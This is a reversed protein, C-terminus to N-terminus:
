GLITSGLFLLLISWVGFLVGWLALAAACVRKWSWGDCAFLRVYFAGPLVFSVLTSGTSGCFSLVMDLSEIFFALVFTSVLLAVTEGVHRATPRWSQASAFLIRDLSSRAPHLMVPYSFGIMFATFLRGIVVPISRTPYSNIVSAKVDEGFTAYGLAGIVIYVLASIAFAINASIWSKRGNDSAFENYVTLVNTHGSFGFVAMPLVSFVKLSRPVASVSPRPSSRWGNYSALVVVLLVLYVVSVLVVVSGWLMSDLRKFFCLLSLPVVAVPLWFSKTVLFAPWSDAAVFDVANPILDGLIILYALLTCFCMIFVAGDVVRGSRPLAQAALSYFTPKDPGTQDRVMKGACDFLLRAGFLALVACVTILIPGLAMGVYAFVYSMGLMGAGLMTNTLNTVSVPISAGRQKKQVEEASSDDAPSQSGESPADAKDLSQMEVTRLTWDAAAVSREHGESLRTFPDISYEIEEDDARAHGGFDVSRRTLTSITISARRDM